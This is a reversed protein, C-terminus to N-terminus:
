CILALFFFFVFGVLFFSCLCHICHEFFLPKQKTQNKNKNTVYRDKMFELKGKGFTMLKNGIQIKQKKAAGTKRPMKM